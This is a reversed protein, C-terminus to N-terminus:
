RVKITCALPYMSSQKAASVYLYTVMLCVTYPLLKISAALHAVIFWEKAIGLSLPNSSVHNYEWPLSNLKVFANTIICFSDLYMVWRFTDKM